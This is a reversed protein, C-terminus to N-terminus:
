IVGVEMLDINNRILVSDTESRYLTLQTLRLLKSINLPSRDIDAVHYTTGQYDVLLPLDGKKLVDIVVTLADTLGDAMLHPYPTGIRPNATTTGLIEQM